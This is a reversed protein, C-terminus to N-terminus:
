PTAPDVEGEPAEDTADGDPTTAEQAPEPAPEQTADPAPEQAADPAPQQAPEPAPEQAADPAPQEAAIAATARASMPWPHPPDAPQALEAPGGCALMLTLLLM